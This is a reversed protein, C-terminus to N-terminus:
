WTHMNEHMKVSVMTMLVGYIVRNRRYSGLQQSKSKAASFTGAMWYHVYAYNM